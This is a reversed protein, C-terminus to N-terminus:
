QGFSESSVDDTIGFNDSQGLTNQFSVRALRSDEKFTLSGPRKDIKM